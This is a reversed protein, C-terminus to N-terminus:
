RQGQNQGKLVIEIEPDSGDLSFMAEGRTLAVDAVRLEDGLRLRAQAPLSESEGEPTIRHAWVKLQGPRRAADPRPRFFARRVSAFEPIEGVVSSSRREEGGYAFLVDGPVPEGGSVMRYRARGDRQDDCVEVTARPTFGGARRFVLPLVVMALAAALAGAREAVGDWIVIGHLVLATAFVAYVLVLLAPRGILRTVGGPAHEGKRRSSVILAVPYLGALISVVIVGTFSLLGTFSGSDTLVMWQSAAFAALVPLTALVFRGSRGLMLDRWTRMRTRHPAAQAARARSRGRDDSLSAMLSESLRGRRRAFRATFTRTDGTGREAVAGRAVLRDVLQLADEYSTGLRSAVDPLSAEGSRVLWGLLRSEEDSEDLLEILSLGAGEPEGEYTMRLTSTVAVRVEREQTDLVELTLRQRGAEEVSLVDWRAPPVVAVRKPRGDQQRDLAFRPGGPSTGLYTIGILLRGNPTGFRLKARQRPVVVVRPALSPLRERTLEFLDLVTYLSGIGLALLVFASGLLTAGLGAEEALPSLATGTEDALLEPSVAGNAGLVFLCYVVVATAQAAVCGRVLSAGGPDRRLVLGGCIAVTTHGFYAFLAVGFVGAVLSGELGRGGTFPLEAHLLNEARVHSLAVMSLAVILALNVAGVVMATAVTADLSERRLYFVGALFLLAIWLAASLGTADELTQGFGVYFVPLGLLCFAFLLASLIASGAGGLYDGVLRGFFAGRYRMPGSRVVSEAILAVTFVNLAGLVALVVIGAIPGISAVAIPLALISAGVTETLTLAYAIWFPSLRELRKAVATWAWRARESAPLWEAYISDLPQAYLQSYAERVGPDDLGLAERVGPAAGATFRYKEGFRHALAARLRKNEPVVAAWEHAHRELDQIKPQEPPQGAASFAEVYALAREEAAGETSFPKVTQRSRSVLRATRSEVLFLLAAARKAPAGGLLQERDLFGGFEDAPM